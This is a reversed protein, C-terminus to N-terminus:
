LWWALLAAAGALGAAVWAGVVRRGRSSDASFTPATRAADLASWFADADAFREVTPVALARAFVAEVADSVPVGLARPTPRREVDCALALAAVVDEEDYPRRGSLLEVCVLALAYVDTWPGTPGHAKAIQEPAAYDITFATVKGGTSAFGRRREAAVKAVGFDLLKTTTAGAEDVLFINSPKVDRHAVGHRHAVGLAEAVPELTRVVQDLSWREDEGRAEALPTGELWELVTFLVTRGDPRAWTGVDYSQVIATTRRSLENLLAGEKVFAERLEERDQSDLEPRFVKVAVPRSWRLHRARYVCGFGGEAVFAEVRYRDDLTVGVLGLPDDEAGTTMPPREGSQNPGEFLPADSVHALLSAVEDRLAADDGCAEALFAGRAEPPADLARMFLAKVRRHDAM